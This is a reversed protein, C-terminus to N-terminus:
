KSSVLIGSPYLLNASSGVIVSVPFLVAVTSFLLHVLPPKCTILKVPLSNGWVPPIPVTNNISIPDNITSPNPTNNTVLNLIDFTAKYYTM